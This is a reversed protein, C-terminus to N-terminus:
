FLNLLAEYWAPTSTSSLHRSIEVIIFFAMCATTINWYVIKGLKPPATKIKNPLLMDLTKKLAAQAGAQIGIMGIYTATGLIAVDALGHLSTNPINGILLERLPSLFYGAFLAFYGVGAITAGIIRPKKTINKMARDASTIIESIAIDSLGLPNANKLKLKAKKLPSMVAFIIGEKVTRYEGALKLNEHVDGRLEAADKLKRIGNEILDDLFPSVHTLVAKQGFLFTYYSKGNIAYEIHGYPLTVDYLIPYCVDGKKLAENFPTREPLKAQIEKWQEININDTIIRIIAHDTIKSNRDEMSFVVKEPLKDKPYYFNTRAEIEQTFIHSNWATGQCNPCTTYGKSACVKCPIFRTQNCMPCSSFGQGNCVPCQVKKNADGAMPVMRAGKCHTCPSRGTGSCRTCTVRGNGNCPLCEVTGKARCTNCGKIIVFDKKLTPLPIFINEVIVGFGKDKRNLVAERVNRELDAHGSLAKYAKDMEVKAAEENEVKQASEVRGPRLAKTQKTILTSLTYANFRLVKGDFAQLKVDEPNYKNGKVLSKITEFAIDKYEQNIKLEIIQADLPPIIEPTDTV